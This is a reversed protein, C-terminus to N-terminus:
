RRWVVRIFVIISITAAAIILLILGLINWWTWGEVARVDALLYATTM